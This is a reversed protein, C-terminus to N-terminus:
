SRLSNVMNQIFANKGAGIATSTWGARSSMFVEFHEAFDENPNTM